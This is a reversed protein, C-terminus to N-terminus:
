LLHWHPGDSHRGLHPRIEIAFRGAHRRLSPGLGNECGAFVFKNDFYADLLIDNDSDHGTLIRYPFAGPFTEALKQLAGNGFWSPKTVLGIDANRKM